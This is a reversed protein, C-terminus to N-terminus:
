LGDFVSKDWIGWGRSLPAHSGIEDGWLIEFPREYKISKWMQFPGKIYITPKANKLTNSLTHKATLTPNSGVRPPQSWNTDFNIGTEEGELCSPMAASKMVECHKEIKLFLRKQKMSLVFKICRAM